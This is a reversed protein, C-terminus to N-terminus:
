RPESHSIVRAAVRFELWFVKRAKDLGFDLADANQSYRVLKALKPLGTGGERSVDSLYTGAVLRKRSQEHEREAASRLLGSM